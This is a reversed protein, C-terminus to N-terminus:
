IGTRSGKGLPVFSDLQIGDNPGMEVLSFSFQVLWRNFREIKRIVLVRAEYTGPKVRRREGGEIPIEDDAPEGTVIGAVSRLQKM